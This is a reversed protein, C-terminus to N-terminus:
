MFIAGNNRRDYEQQNRLADAYGQPTLPGGQSGSPGYIMGNQMSPGFQGGLFQSIDMQTNEPNGFSYGGQGPQATTHFQPQQGGMNWDGAIGRNGRANLYQMFQQLMGQLGNDQGQAQGFQWNGQGNNPNGSPGFSGMGPNGNVTTWGPRGNGTRAGIMMDLTEGFPTMVTGNGSMLQGGHQGLWNQMGAMDNIGSGMWADRYQQRNMGNYTGEHGVQNSPQSPAFTTGLLTGDTQNVSGGGGQASPAMTDNKPMFGDTFGSDQTPGFSYQNQQPKNTSTTPIPNMFGFM